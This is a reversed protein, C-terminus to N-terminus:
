EQKSRAIIGKIEEPTFDYRKGTGPPYQYYLPDGPKLGTIDAGSIPFFEIKLDSLLADPVDGGDWLQFYYLLYASVLHNRLTESIDSRELDLRTADLETLSSLLEPNRHNTFYPDFSLFGMTKTPFGDEAFQKTHYYEHELVSIWDQTTQISEGSFSDPFILVAHNGQPFTVVVMALVATPERELLDVDIQKIIEFYEANTHIYQVFSVDPPPPNRRIMEAVFGYRLDPNEVVKTFYDQRTTLLVILVLALGIACAAAIGWPQPLARTRERTRRQPM